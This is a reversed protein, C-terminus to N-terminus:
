LWTPIREPNTYPNVRTIGAAQGMESVLNSFMSEAATAKRTLNEMIRREGETLIVDVTVPRKQGFRWCRRVSQYYQEFSHSPFYTIHNCHQFNLGWAGIKPKTILVRAEGDIFQLFRDEKVQDSDSGAVQVSGPIMKELMHGEENLHCWVLAPESTANVM